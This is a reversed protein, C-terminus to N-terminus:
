LVADRALVIRVVVVVVNRDSVMRRHRAFMRARSIVTPCTGNVVIGRTCTVDSINGASLVSVREYAAGRIRQSSGFSAFRTVLLAGLFLSFSLRVRVFPHFSFSLFFILRPVRGTRRSSARTLYLIFSQQKCSGHADRPIRM